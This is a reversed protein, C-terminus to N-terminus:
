DLRTVPPETVPMELLGQNEVLKLEPHHRSARAVDYVAGAAHALAAPPASGGILHGVFLAAMLDGTGHPVGHLHPTECLHATEPEVALTAIRTGPAPASSVLVLRPGLGRAAAVAQEQTGCPTSSLEDLEFLNPTLIDAAEVLRKQAAPVEQPVYLGTDADGMIPDCVYLADPNADKLRDVARLVADAQDANALYGSFLAACGGFWGRAALSDIMHTIDAARVAHRAPAGHGPHHSLLVTPVPWVTHGLRMLAFVGASNGVHGAVVQSSISLITAM